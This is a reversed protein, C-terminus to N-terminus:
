STVALLQAGEWWSHIALHHLNGATISELTLICVTSTASDEVVVPLSLIWNLFLGCCCFTYGVGYCFGEALM